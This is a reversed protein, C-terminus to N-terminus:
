VNINEAGAGEIIDVVYTYARAGAAIVAEAPNSVVVYIAVAEASTGKIIHVVEVM